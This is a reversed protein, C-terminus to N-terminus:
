EPWVQETEWESVESGVPHKAYGRRHQAEDTTKIRVKARFLAARELIEEVAVLSRRVPHRQEDHVEHL